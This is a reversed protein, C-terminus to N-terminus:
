AKSFQREAASWACYPYLVLQSNYYRLEASVEAGLWPPRPFDQEVTELEIEAVVLGQNAGSFVDIEWTFGGYEVHYRRKEIVPSRCLGALMEEAEALPLPYEYEHRVTGPTSSKINLWARCGGIRVRISNKENHSLYGQRLGVGVDAQLRWSEDQLLFKREIELAM